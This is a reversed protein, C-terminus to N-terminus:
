SNSARKIRDNIAIGSGKNPIKAIQIKKYGKKKILRFTGDGNNIWIRDPSEFDNCIYIDPHTDNNIDRFQAMLGWDRLHEQIPNGNEDKFHSNTMDILEFNGKGDNIYFQDVEAMEFRLLVDGKVAAEYEKNYPPLVIWRNNTIEM